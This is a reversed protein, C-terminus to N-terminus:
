KNKKCSSSAASLFLRGKPVWSNGNLVTAMIRLRIVMGRMEWSMTYRKM